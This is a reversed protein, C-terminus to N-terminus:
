KRAHLLIQCRHSVKDSAIRQQLVNVIVYVSLLKHAQFAKNGQQNLLLFTMDVWKMIIWILMTSLFKFSSKYSVFYLLKFWKTCFTYKTYCFQNGMAYMKNLFATLLNKQMNKLSQELLFVLQIFLLDIGIICCLM